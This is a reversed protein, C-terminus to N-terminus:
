ELIPDDMSGPLPAEAPLPEMRPARTLRLFNLTWAAETYSRLIGNLVLFFPLFCLFAVLTVIFGTRLAETTGYVAGTILPAATIVFPLAIVVSALITILLLIVGLGLMPGIHQKFIEWGRQLGEMVGLDELVIAIISQQVFVNLAWLIPVLLCLFPLFCILGIGLTVVSGIAGLVILGIVAVFALLFILLTLGFVRWFYPTSGNFLEGFTLRAAGDHVQQTGRILAVRGVTSFFVVLVLVILGVLIALGIYLALLGPDIDAFYREIEIPVDTQYTVTGNGSSTSATGCAAFLGFIWLVKHKWITKWAQSLVDGINM